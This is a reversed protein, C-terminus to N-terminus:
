CTHAEKKIMHNTRPEVARAASPGFAGPKCATRGTMRLFFCRRKRLLGPGSHRRRLRRAPDKEVSGGSREVTELIEQRLTKRHNLAPNTRKIKLYIPWAVANGILVPGLGFMTVVQLMMSRSEDPLMWVAVYFMALVVALGAFGYPAVRKDPILFALCCVATGVLSIVLSHVATTAVDNGLSLYNYLPDTLLATVVGFICLYALATFFDALVIPSKRRNQKDLFFSM